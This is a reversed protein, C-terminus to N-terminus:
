AARCASWVMTPIWYFSDGGFGPRNVTGHAWSYVPRGGASAPAKPVIAFGSVAIDHDDRSRSHYLIRWITAPPHLPIGTVQKALILTGPPADPLPKPPQYLNGPPTTVRPATASSEAHASSGWVAGLAFVGIMIGVRATRM